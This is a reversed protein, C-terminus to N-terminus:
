HSDNGIEELIETVFSNIQENAVVSYDSDLVCMGEDGLSRHAHASSLITKFPPLGMAKFKNRLGKYEKTRKDAMNILFFAKFGADQAKKMEILRVTRAMQSEHSGLGVAEVPVVTIHSLAITDVHSTSQGAPTDLLIFDYDDEHDFITDNLGNSSTDVLDILEEKKVDKLWTQRREMWKRISDSSDINIILVTRGLQSIAVALNAITTTKGVGGKENVASIVYAM